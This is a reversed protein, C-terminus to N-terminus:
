WMPLAFDLNAPPNLPRLIEFQLMLPSEMIIHTPTMLGGLCFIGSVRFLTDPIKTCSNKYSKEFFCYTGARKESVFM